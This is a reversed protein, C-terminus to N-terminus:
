TVNKLHFFNLCFYFIHKGSSKRSKMDSYYKNIKDHKVSEALTLYHAETIGYYKWIAVKNMFELFLSENISEEVAAVQFNEAAKLINEM